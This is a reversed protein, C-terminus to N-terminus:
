DARRPDAFREPENRRAGRATLSTIVPPRNDNAPPTVYTFGSPLTASQGAVTVVVDAPGTVHEATTATLSTSGAATVDRAAAGGISVTATSAFNAGTITVM